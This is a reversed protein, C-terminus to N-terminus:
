PERWGDVLANACTRHFCYEDPYDDRWTVTMTVWDDTVERGCIACDPEM